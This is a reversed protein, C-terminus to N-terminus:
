TREALGRLMTERTLASFRAEDAGVGQWVFKGVTKKILGLRKGNRSVEISDQGVYVAQLGLKAFDLPRLLEKLQNRNRQFFSM